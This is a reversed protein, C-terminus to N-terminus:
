EEYRKLQDEYYDIDINIADIKKDWKEADALRAQHLQRWQEYLRKLEAKIGQIEIREQEDYSPTYNDTYNM